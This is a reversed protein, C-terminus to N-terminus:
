RAQAGPGPRAGQDPLPLARARVPRPSRTSCRCTSPSRSAAPRAPPSSRTARPPRGRARRGPAVLAHEIGAALAELLAPHLDDPVPTPAGAQAGSAPPRSAAGRGRGTELVAEWPLDAHPRGRSAMTRAAQDAGEVVGVERELQQELALPLRDRHHQGVRSTASVTPGITSRRSPRAAQDVLHQHHVRGRPVAGGLDGRASPASTCWSASSSGSSPGTSPLPSAM